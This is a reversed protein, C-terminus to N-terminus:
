RWARLSVALNTRARSLRGRVGQESTGQAEAIEAYSLGDMVASVWVDRQQRPLNALAQNLENYGAEAMAMQQPDDARSAQEPLDAAPDTRIQNRKRLVQLCQRHAIRFLWTRVAAPEALEGIKRWATVFVEQTVDEAETRDALMRLALSNVRDRYRRVLAEFAYKNGGAALIAM